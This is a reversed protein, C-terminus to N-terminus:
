AQKQFLKQLKEHKAQEQALINTRKMRLEDRRKDHASKTTGSLGAVDDKEFITDRFNDVTRGHVLKEYRYVLTWAAQELREDRTLNFYSIRLYRKRFHYGGIVLLLWFIVLFLFTLFSFLDDWDPNTKLSVGFVTQYTCLSDYEDM